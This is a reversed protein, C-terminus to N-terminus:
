RAKDKPRGGFEEQISPLKPSDIGRIVVAYAAAGVCEMMELKENLDMARVPMHVITDDTMVFSYWVRIGNLRALAEMLASPSGWMKEDTILFVADRIQAMPVLRADYGKARIDELFLRANKRLAIKKEKPKNDM